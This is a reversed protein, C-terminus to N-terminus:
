FGLPHKPPVMRVSGGKKAKIAGKEANSELQSRQRRTQLVDVVPLADLLKVTSQRALEEKMRRITEKRYAPDTHWQESFDIGLIQRYWRPTFGIEPRVFPEDGTAPRRTAPAGPAIYSILQCASTSM